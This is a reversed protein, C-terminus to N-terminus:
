RWHKTIWAFALLLLPIAAMIAAGYFPHWKALLANM